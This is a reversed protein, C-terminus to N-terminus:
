SAVVIPIVLQINITINMKVFKAILHNGIHYRRCHLLRAIDRMKQEIPTARKSRNLMFIATFPPTLQLPIAKKKGPRHEQPKVVTEIQRFATM